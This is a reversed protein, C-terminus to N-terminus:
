STRVDLWSSAFTDTIFTRSSVSLRSFCPCMMAWFCSCSTALSFRFILTRRDLSRNRNVLFVSIRESARASFRDIKSSLRSTAAVDVGDVGEGVGVGLMREVEADVGTGSEVEDLMKLLLFGWIPQRQLPVRSPGHPLVIITISEDFVISM